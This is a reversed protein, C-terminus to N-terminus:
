LIKNKFCMANSVELTMTDLNTCHFNISKRQSRYFANKKKILSNMKENMWPPDRDDRLITKNPTFNHFTNLITYNFIKVQEHVNKQM